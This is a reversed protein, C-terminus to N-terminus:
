IAAESIRNKMEYRKKFIHERIAMNIFFSSLVLHVFIDQPLTSSNLVFIPDVTFNVILYGAFSLAFVKIVGHFTNDITIKRIYLFSKRFINVVFIVYMGFGFIGAQLLGILVGGLHGDYYLFYKDSFGYGIFLSNSINEWLIPLRNSIRNDFTDEAKVSGQEVSVAGIFRNYSAGIISNLDFIDTADLIMILVFAFIFLQMFINPKKRAIFVFYAIFIFLFMIIASRTASILVSSMSVLIISYTYFKPIVEDKTEILVFAFVFALRVNIYGSPIARIEGSVSNFIEFVSGPNFFNAIEMGTRITYIQSIVEFFVFPFFMTMFKYMERKDHILAPISYLLTYFFLGRAAGNLFVKFTVGFFISVGLIYPIIYAINKLKYVDIVKSKKGKFIAKILAIILFLDMVSFSIKSIPSFLPLRRLAEGSTEAFLGGPYASIALFFAFWFFDSKSYWFLVFLIVFFLRDAGIPAFYVFYIAAAFLLVMAASRYFIVMGESLNKAKGVLNQYITFNLL